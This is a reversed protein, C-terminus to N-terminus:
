VGKVEAAAASEIDHYFKNYITGATKVKQKKQALESVPVIMKEVLPYKEIVKKLAEKIEEATGIFVSNCKLQGSPLTPGIYVYQEKSDAGTGVNVENVAKEKEKALEMNDANEALTVAETGKKSAM